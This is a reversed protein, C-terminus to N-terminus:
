FYLEKLRKASVIRIYEAIKTITRKTIDHYNEYFEHSHYDKKKTDSTHSYEHCLVHWVKLCIEEKNSSLEINNKNIHITDYGNTWGGHVDSEGLYVDRDFEEGLPKFIYKDLDVPIKGYIKNKNLNEESFDKHYGRKAVNKPNKGTLFVELKFKEVIDHILYENDDHIVIHGRRICDDSWIDCEGFMVEKGIIEAIAIKKDTATRIIPKDFVSELSVRGERVFQLTQRAERNDFNDKTITMLEEVENMKAKIEEYMPDTELFENRAFNLEAKVKVNICYNFNSDFNKVGLERCYIVNRAVGSIFVDFNNDSFQELMEITPNLLKGDIFIDVNKTPLLSYYMGKRAKELEWWSKEKYFKCNVKCGKVSSNLADINYGLFERINVSVKSYKTRWICTGFNMIQGRGMGFQGLDEDNDRKNTEGFVRFYDYIDDKSMGRGNDEVIAENENITINIVTAGADRSNQVLEKLAKTLSGTQKSIVDKLLNRSMEFEEQAM